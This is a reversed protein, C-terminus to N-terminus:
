GARSEHGLERDTGLGMPLALAQKVHPCVDWMPQPTPIRIHQGLTGGGGKRKCAPCEWREKKLSLLAYHNAEYVAQSDWAQRGGLLQPVM